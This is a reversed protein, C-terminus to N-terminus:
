RNARNESLKNKKMEEDGLPRACKYAYAYIM